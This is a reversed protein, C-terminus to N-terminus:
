EPEPEDTTQDVQKCRGSIIYGHWCGKCDVSPQFTPAERNGNWEWQAKGGNQNQPDHKIGHVATRPGEKLLLTGCTSHARKPCSFSFRAPKENPGVPDGRLNLFKVKADSM